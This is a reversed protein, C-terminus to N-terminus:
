EWFNNWNWYVKPNTFLLEIPPRLNVLRLRERMLQLQAEGRGVQPQVTRSGSTAAVYWALPFFLSAVVLAVNIWRGIISLRCLM